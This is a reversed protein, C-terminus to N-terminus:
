AVAARKVEVAGLLDTVTAGDASLPMVLVEMLHSNFRDRVIHFPGRAVPAATEVCLEFMIRMGDYYPSPPMTSLLKGWHRGMFRVLAQGGLAFRFDKGDVVEMIFISDLVDKFCAPVIEKRSPAFREGAIQRWARWAGMLAPSALASAAKFDQDDPLSVDQLM